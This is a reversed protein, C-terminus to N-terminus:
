GELAIASGGAESIKRAAASSFKHAHIKVAFDIKGNGLIKVPSNKPSLGSEYLDQITVEQSDSFKASIQDLNVPTYQVRFHNKFGRKPLRRQLPMQGGEFGAPISAGARSRQGKHGKGSTKGLGSSRGRGLRKRSRTEEYFPYLEHLNM